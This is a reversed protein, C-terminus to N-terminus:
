IYKQAAKQSYEAKLFSASIYSQNENTYVIYDPLTVVGNTPSYTTGGTVISTVYGDLATTLHTANIQQTGTTALEAWMATPDLGGGQPAENRWTGNRYTLVQGATAGSISVDSLSSLTLSAGGPNSGLASLYSNTWFGFMAKINDITSTSGGNPVVESGGSTYARFLTRFFAISLYTTNAETKTLYTSTADTKSLYNTSVWTQTAMDTIDSALAFDTAHHGDLLDANMNTVLNTSTM